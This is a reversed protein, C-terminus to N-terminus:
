SAPRSTEEPIHIRMTFRNAGNHFPIYMLDDISADALRLSIAEFSTLKFSRENGPMFHKELGGRPGKYEIQIQLAQQERQYVLAIRSPEKGTKILRVCYLFIEEVALSVKAGREQDLGCEGAVERTIKQILPLRRIDAFVSLTLIEEAPNNTM